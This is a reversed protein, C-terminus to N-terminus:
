QVPLPRFFEDVPPGGAPAVYRPPATTAEPPKEGSSFVDSDTDTQDGNLPAEAARQSGQRRRDKFTRTLVPKPPFNQVAYNGKVQNM